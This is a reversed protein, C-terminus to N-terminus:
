PLFIHLQLEIGWTKFVSLKSSRTDYSFWCLVTSFLEREGQQVWRQVLNGICNLKTMFTKKHTTITIFNAIAIRWDLPTRSLSYIIVRLSPHAYFFLIPKSCADAHSTKLYFFVGRRWRENEQSLYQLFAKFHKKAESNLNADWWFQHWWRFLALNFM